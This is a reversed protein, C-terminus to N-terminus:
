HKSSVSRIGGDVNRRCTGQLLAGDGGARDCRMVSQSKDSLCFIELFSSMRFAATLVGVAVLRSSM